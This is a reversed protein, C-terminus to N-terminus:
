RLVESGLHTADENGTQDIEFGGQGDLRKGQGIERYPIWKVANMIADGPDPEVDGLSQVCESVLHPEARQEAAIEGSLHGEFGDLAEADVGRVPWTRLLCCGKASWSPM